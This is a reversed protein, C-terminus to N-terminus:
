EQTRHRRHFGTAIVGAAILGAGLLPAALSADNGTVALENATPPTADGHVQQDPLNAVQPAPSVTVTIPDARVDPGSGNSATVAFTSAGAATPTGSVWGDSSLTLGEPLAGRAISFQPEPYGGATFRYSYPTGVTAAPPPTSATFVPAAPAPETTITIPGTSAGPDVGNDATVTFTSAGLTTPYGRLSGDFQDLELGDPLSGQSVTFLPTPYGSAAFTYSYKIGVTAIKDPTSATFRPAVPEPNVDITIVDTTADPDVGNSATVRFSSAGTTTPTGSLIGDSSLTLGDPLSGDALQFTPAPSGSAAFAYTYATGVTATDSPTSATFAPAREITLVSVSGSVNNLVYLNDGDPSLVVAVPRNGTPITRVVSRTQRSLVSVSNDNANAVYGWQSDTSVTVAVPTQGVNITDLVSDDTLDIVSVSGVGNAVLALGGDPAIAVDTPYIGVPVTAEVKREDVSVISVTDDDGSTTLIRKGDPTIALSTPSGGVVALTAVGTPLYAKLVDGSTAYAALGDPSVAIGASSGDLAWDRVLDRGTTSFKQIASGTATFLYEGDPTVALDTLDAGAAISGEISRTATAVITVEGTAYHGIYLTGGDPSVAISTPEGGVAIETGAAVAASSSSFLVGLVAVILAIALTPSKKLMM